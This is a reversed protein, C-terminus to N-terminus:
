LPRSGLRSLSRSATSYSHSSRDWCVPFSEYKMTDHNSTHRELGRESKGQVLLSQQACDGGVVQSATQEQQYAHSVSPLEVADTETETEQGNRGRVIQLHMSM